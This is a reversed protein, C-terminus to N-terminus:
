IFLHSKVQSLQCWVPNWIYWQNNISSFVLKWCIIFLKLHDVGMEQFLNCV